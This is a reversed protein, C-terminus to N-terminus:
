NIKNWLYDINATKNIRWFNGSKIQSQPLEFVDDRIQKIYIGVSKTDELDYFDCSDQFNKKLEPHLNRGYNTIKKYDDSSRIEFRDLVKYIGKCKGKYESNEMKKTHYIVVHSANNLANKDRKFRKDTPTVHYLGNNIEYYERRGDSGDTDGAGISIGYPKFTDRQNETM